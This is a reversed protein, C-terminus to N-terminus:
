EKAYCEVWRRIKEFQEPNVREAIDRKVIFSIASGHGVRRGAIEEVIEVLSDLGKALEPFAFQYFDFFSVGDKLRFFRAKKLRNKIKGQDVSFRRVKSYLSLKAEFSDFGKIFKKLRLALQDDIKARYQPWDFAQAWFLVDFPKKKNNLEYKFSAENDFFRIKGQQNVGINKSSLDSYGLVYAIIFAKWFSELSVTKVIEDPLSDTFHEACSFSEKRQVVVQKGGIEMPFAPVVFHRDGLIRALEWAFFDKINTGKRKKCIFDGRFEMFKERSSCLRFRSVLSSDRLLRERGEMFFLHSDMYEDSRLEKFLGMVHQTSLDFDKNWDAYLGGVLSLFVLLGVIKM